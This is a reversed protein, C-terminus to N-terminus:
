RIGYRYRCLRGEQGQKEKQPRERNNKGTSFNRTVYPFPRNFFRSVYKEEMQLAIRRVDDDDDLMDLM